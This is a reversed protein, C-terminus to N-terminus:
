TIHIILENRVDELLNLVDLLNDDNLLGTEQLGCNKNDHIFEIVRNVNVLDKHKM